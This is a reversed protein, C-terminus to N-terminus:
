GHKEESSELKDKLMMMGIIRWEISKKYQPEKKLFDKQVKIDENILSIVEKINM